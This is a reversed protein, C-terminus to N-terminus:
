MLLSLWLPITALSFIHSILALRAGPKCDEDVLRPFVITNLGSPMCSMLLASNIVDLRLLKCIGFIIAPLVVLRLAVVIYAKIDGILEKFSFMSLTLGTLVMSVPAVCASSMGLIGNVSDPLSIGFLGFLMGLIIAVTIPNFIRKVSTGSGTLMAYGFTYTYIAFPICFLIMDTLGAEGFLSESLAYGMYAYNAITLTYRYVKQEYGKKTLLKAVYISAFHLVALLIVSIIISDYREKFYSVTFNKSFSTFVKTPLFLNVLLFSLIGTQSPLTKKIKGFLWGIFLFIYLILLQELVVTMKFLAGIRDPEILNYCVLLFIVLLKAFLFPTHWFLSVGDSNNIFM